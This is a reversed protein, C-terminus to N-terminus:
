RKKLYNLSLCFLLYISKSFGYRMHFHYVKFGDLLKQLISSSLSNNLYRWITLYEKMAFINHNRKLIKLWLVFDEKTKLNPFQCKSNIINKKLMVTSLGIDCSKILDKFNSYNKAIRRGIIKNAHDVIKYSTHCVSAKNKKLFIIQKELKNKVWRDDSDLFAIYNGKSSKIGLNRSFGAGYNKNNIILKIRSDLNIISKIYKLDEQEADDYILIVEINKYTQKLVSNIAEKIFKKKKYYPIIISILDM